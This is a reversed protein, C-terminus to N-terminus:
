KKSIVIYLGTLLIISGFLLYINQEKENKNLVQKEQEISSKTLIKASDELKTTEFKLVCNFNNFKEQLIKKTDTLLSVVYNNNNTKIENELELEIDKLDVDLDICNNSKPTIGGYVKKLYKNFVLDYYKKQENNPTQFLINM